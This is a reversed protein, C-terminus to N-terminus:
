QQDRSRGTASRGEIAMILTRLSNQANKRERTFSSRFAIDRSIGLQQLATITEAVLSNIATRARANAQDYTLHQPRLYHGSPM